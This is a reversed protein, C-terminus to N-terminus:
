YNQKALIPNFQSNYKQKVFPVPVPDSSKTLSDAPGPPAAPVPAKGHLLEYTRLKEEAERRLRKERLLALNLAKQQETIRKMDSESISDDRKERKHKKKKKKDKKDRKGKAGNRHEDKEKEKRKRKHKRKEADDHDGRSRKIAPMIPTYKSLSPAPPKPITSTSMTAASQVTTSAPRMSVSSPRDVRETYPAFIRLPDYRQKNKLGIEIAHGDDDYADRRKPAVDYWSRTGLAEHTDQGLYTLYGIQKEYKEQERRKEEDM